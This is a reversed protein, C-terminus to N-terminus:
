AADSTRVERYYVRSKGQVALSCKQVSCESWVPMGGLREAGLDVRVSCPPAACASLNKSDSMAGLVENNRRGAMALSLNLSCM